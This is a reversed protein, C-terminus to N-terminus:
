TEFNRIVVETVPGRADTRSNISRRATLQRVDFGQYMRLVEFSGSNSLMVLCGRQDLQVFVDRLLEQEPQRFGEWYYDTFSATQSIPVYPPDFYVFDGARARDLVSAFPACQLDVGALSRSCAQLASETPLALGSQHARGVPVNFRGRRNVRYLGNFGTRNLYILLAARELLSITEDNFRDREKYYEENSHKDGLEKLRAALAEPQDRVVSWALMLSENLDTLVARGTVVGHGRLHFFVAGSGVFPEHYTSLDSVRPFLRQYDALLQTKGGAWKLFPRAGLDFAAAPPRPM